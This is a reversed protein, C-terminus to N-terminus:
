SPYVSPHLASYRDIDINAMFDDDDDINHQASICKNDVSTSGGFKPAENMQTPPVYPPPEFPPPELDRAMMVGKRKEIPKNKFNKLM